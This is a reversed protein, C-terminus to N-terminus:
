EAAAPIVIVRVEDATKGLIAEVVWSLVPGGIREAAAIATGRPVIPVDSRMLSLCPLPETTHTLVGQTDIAVPSLWIASTQVPSEGPVTVTAPVGFTAFPIALDPRLDTM